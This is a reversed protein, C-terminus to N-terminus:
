IHILSLVEIARAVAVGVILPAFPQPVSSAPLLVSMLLGAGDPSYWKKGTRGRGGTQEDAIVVTFSAPGTKALDILRDNTSSISRYIELSPVSWIEAWESVPRGQWEKLM